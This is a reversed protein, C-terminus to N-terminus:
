LPDTGPVGRQLFVRHRDGVAAGCAGEHNDQPQHRGRRRRQDVDVLANHVGEFRVPHHDVSLGSVTQGSVDPQIASMKQGPSRGRGRAALAKILTNELASAMLMATTIALSRFRSRFRSRFCRESVTAGITRVLLRVHEPPAVRISPLRSFATKRRWVNSGNGRWGILGLPPPSASTTAEGGKFRNLGADYPNFKEVISHRNACVGVSLSKLVDGVLFLLSSTREIKVWVQAPEHRRLTEPDPRRAGHM